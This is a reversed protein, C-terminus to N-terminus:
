QVFVTAKQGKLAVHQCTNNCMQAPSLQAPLQDPLRPSEQAADM